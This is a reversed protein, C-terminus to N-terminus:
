KPAKVRIDAFAGPEGLYAERNVSVSEPAVGDQKVHQFRCLDCCIEELFLRVQRLHSERAARRRHVTQQNDFDDNMAQVRKVVAPPASVLSNQRPLGMQITPM